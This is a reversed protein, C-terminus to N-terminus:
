VKASWVLLRWFVPLLPHTISGRHLERGIMSIFRDSLCLPSTSM